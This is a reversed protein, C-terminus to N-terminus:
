SIVMINRDADYYRNPNATNHYLPRHAAASRTADLTWGTPAAFYTGTFGVVTATRSAGAQSDIHTREALAATLADRKGVDTVNRFVNPDNVISQLRAQSMGWANRSVESGSAANIDDTDAFGGDAYRTAIADASLVGTRGSALDTLYRATIPAKKALTATIDSNQARLANIQALDAATTGPDYIMDSLEQIGPKNGADGLFRFIAEREDAEAQTANAGSRVLTRFRTALAATNAGNAGYNQGNLNGTARLQAILADSRARREKAERAIRQSRAWEPNAASRMKSEYEEVGAIDLQAQAYMAQDGRARRNYAELDAQYQPDSAGGTYNTPNPAHYRAYRRQRRNNGGTSNYNIYEHLDRRYQRRERNSAGPGPAVPTRAGTRLEYHRVRNGAFHRTINNASQRNATKYMETNMIARRGNAAGRRVAAGLGSIRAGVEGLGRFASRLISPAVIFPLFSALLAVMVMWIHTGEASYALTQVLRSAGYLLSCIPYVLILAKMLDVWRKFLKQTNPLINCIFALPSIAIALMVAIQRAALMLFFILVSVLAVLLMIIFPIMLVWFSATFGTTVAVSIPGIAVSALGAGGAVILIIADFLASLTIEGESGGIAHRVGDAVGDLWTGLGNGFINSLDIAGQCLYFSLNILVAAIVVRPLMKKIGYNDIGYGTVQSLIIVLLIIVLIVNAVIRFYYWMQYAPSKNADASFLEPSIDLYTSLLGYIGDTGEALSQSTPCVIWGLSGAVSGCSYNGSDDAKGASWGTDIDPADALGNRMKIDEWDTKLTDLGSCTINVGDTDKRWTAGDTGRAHNALFISIDAEATSSFTSDNEKAWTRIKELEEDYKGNCDQKDAEVLGDILPDDATGLRTAIDSCTVSPTNRITESGNYYQWLPVNKTASSSSKYTYTALEVKKTSPNREYLKIGGSITGFDPESSTACAIKFAELYVWYNETDTFTNLDGGPINNNFVKETFLAELKPVLDDYDLLFLEDDDSIARSCSKGAVPKIMNYNGDADCFLESSSIGLEKLLSDTEKGFAHCDFIGNGDEKDVYAELFVSEHRWVEFINSIEYDYSGFGKSPETVRPEHTTIYSTNPSLCHVLGQYIQKARATSQSGTSTGAAHASHVATASSLIFSILIGAVVTLIASARLRSIKPEPHKDSRKLTLM